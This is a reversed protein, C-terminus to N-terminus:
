NTFYALPRGPHAKSDGVMGFRVCSLLITSQGPSKNLFFDALELIRKGTALM